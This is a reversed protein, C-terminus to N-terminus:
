SFNRRVLEKAREIGEETLIAGGGNISNNDPLNCHKVYREMEARTSFHAEYFGTEAFDKEPKYEINFGNRRANERMEDVQFDACSFALSSVAPPPGALPIPKGCAKASEEHVRKATVRQGDIEIDIYGGADQDMMTEFNVEIIEGTDERRFKFM